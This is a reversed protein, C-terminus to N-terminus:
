IARSAQVFCRRVYKHHWYLIEQDKPETRPCIWARPHKEHRIPWHSKHLPSEIMTTCIIQAFWPGEGFQPRPCDTKELQFELRPILLQFQPPSAQRALGCEGLQGLALTGKQPEEDQVGGQRDWSIRCNRRKGAVHRFFVMRQATADDRESALHFKDLGSESLSKTNDPSESIAQIGRTTSLRHVIFTAHARM